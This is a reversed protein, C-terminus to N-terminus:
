LFLKDCRGQRGTSCLSGLTISKDASDSVPKPFSDSVLKVFRNCGLGVVLGIITVSVRVKSV